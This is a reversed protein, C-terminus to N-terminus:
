LTANAELWDAVPSLAPESALRGALRARLRPLHRLYDPKGNAALRRFIAVIRLDRQATLVNLSCRFEAEDLAPFADHYRRIAAEVDVPDYDRRADFLLSALDYSVPGLGADQVDLIGTADGARILNGAFFDRLLLSNPIALSPTLAQRWAAEFTARDAEPACVEIFLGAQEIFRHANFVPLTHVAPIRFRRHLDILVDVAAALLPGAPAGRDLLADFTDDGLDQVLLLGEALDCRYVAPALLGISRLRVSIDLFAASAGGPDDMLVARARGHALRYFRRTSADGALPTVVADSWGAGTLFDATAQRM